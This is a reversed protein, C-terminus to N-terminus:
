DDRDHPENPAGRPPAIDQAGEVRDRYLASRALLMLGVPATATLFFAILLEHLSPRGHLTSFCIISALVISAMGFTSGLTPAHVREFFSALRLLGLSGILTTAAGILLLLGVVLAAWGPLDPAQIM